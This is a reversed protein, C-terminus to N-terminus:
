LAKDRSSDIYPDLKQRILPHVDNRKRARHTRSRARDALVMWSEALELLRVRDAASSAREALWLTNMANVTYEEDKSM